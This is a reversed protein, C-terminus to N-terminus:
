SITSNQKLIDVNFKRSVPILKTVYKLELKYAQSRGKVGVLYDSNLLYSKHVRHFSKDYKEILDEIKKLSMREIQKRIQGEDNLYHINSYNDNAEFLVIKDIPSTFLTKGSKNSISLIEINNTKTKPNESSDAIFEITMRLQDSLYQLYIRWVVLLSPLLAILFLSFGAILTYKEEIFIPFLFFTSILVSLFYVLITGIKRATLDSFIRSIMLGLLCNVGTLLLFVYLFFLLSKSEKSLFENVGFLYLMVVAFLSFLISSPINKALLNM